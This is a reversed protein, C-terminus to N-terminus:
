INNMGSSDMKFISHAKWVDFLFKWHIKDFHLSACSSSIHAKSFLFFIEPLYIIKEKTAVDPTSALLAHLPPQVLEHLKAIVWLFWLFDSIRFKLHAQFM